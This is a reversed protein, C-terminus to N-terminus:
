LFTAFAVSLIFFDCFRECKEVLSESGLLLASVDFADFAYAQYIEKQSLTEVFVKSLFMQSVSPM